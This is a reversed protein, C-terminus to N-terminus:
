LATYGGDGIPGVYIFGVKMDAASAEPAAPAAPEAPAAPKPACGTFSGVVMAAIVLWVLGRKKMHIGRLESKYWIGTPM